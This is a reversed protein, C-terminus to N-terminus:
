GMVVVLGLMLISHGWFRWAVVVLSRKWFAWHFFIIMANFMICCSGLSGLCRHSCSLTRVEGTLEEVISFCLVLHLHHISTIVKLLLLHLLSWSTDYFTSISGTHTRCESSNSQIISVSIWLRHWRMLIWHNVLFAVVHLHFLKLNRMFSMFFLPRANNVTVYILRHWNCVRVLQLWFDLM